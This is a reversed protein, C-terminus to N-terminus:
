SFFQHRFTVCGMDVSTVKLPNYGEGIILETSAGGIDLVLKKNLESHTHAVGLYINEAEQQGSLLEVPHGLAQEANQLFVDANKAIRLTATAVVKINETPIDQLREAFFRLCEIGRAMALENLINNHDLGSALRVKRKVKDVTQSSNAVMRTILMHFSNSGLDIVAYLPAKSVPKTTTM